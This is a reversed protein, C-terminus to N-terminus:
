GAEMVWNLYRSTPKPTFFRYKWTSLHEFGVDQVDSFSKSNQMDLITLVPDYYTGWTVGVGVQRQPISKKQRNSHINKWEILDISNYPGFMWSSLFKYYESSVRM